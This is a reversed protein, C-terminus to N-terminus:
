KMIDLGLSHRITRQPEPALNVEVLGLSLFAPAAQQNEIFHELGTLKHKQDDTLIDMFGNRFTDEATAIQTRTGRITIVLSGVSAPDPSPSQLLQALHREQDALTRILPEITQARTMLLTLLSRFQDDSLGLYARVVEARPDPPPPAQALSADPSLDLPRAWLSSSGSMSILVVILALFLGKKM